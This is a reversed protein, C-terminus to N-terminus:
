NQDVTPQPTVADATVVRAAPGRQIAAALTRTEACNEGCLGQLRALNRQAKQLAGREVLAEGEGSIALLSDPDLSLVHRYFAIARGYLGQARAVKALGLFAAANSPDIVLAAEYADRGADFNGSAVQTDGTTVLEASQPLVARMPAKSSGASATVGVILALALVAPYYRM